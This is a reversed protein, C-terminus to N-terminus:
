RAIRRMTRQFRALEVMAARTAAANKAELERRQARDAEERAAVVTPDEPPEVVVPTEAAKVATTRTNVGAGEFVPSVEFIDLKTIVRRAGDAKEASSPAASDLIRFGFSWEQDPGMGKLLNYTDLGDRTDLFIKGNFIAQDGREAVMGKGVPKAGFIADHNYGSVKVRQGDQIAGARIIDGDKDVVGLTAFIAEVEGKDADKFQLVGFSKTETAEPM